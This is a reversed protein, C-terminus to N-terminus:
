VSYRGPLILAHNMMRTHRAHEYCYGVIPVFVFVYWSSSRLPISGLPTYNVTKQVLITNGGHMRNSITRM